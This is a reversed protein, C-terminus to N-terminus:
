VFSWRFAVSAEHCIRRMILVVPHALGERLDPLWRDWFGQRRVYSPDHRAAGLKEGRIHAAEGLIVGDDQETAEETLLCGCGPFAFRNYSNFALRLKVSPKLSSSM